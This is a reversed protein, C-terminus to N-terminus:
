EKKKENKQNSPRTHEPPPEHKSVYTEILRINKEKKKNDTM